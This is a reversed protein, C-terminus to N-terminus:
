WKDGQEMHIEDHCKVCVSMLNELNYVSGGKRIAVIHHVLTAPVTRGQSRCRECIPSRKLKIDRVKRWQGAYGRSAATGRRDDYRKCEAKKHRECYRGDRVLEPCGPKSCPRMPKVPMRDGGLPLASTPNSRACRRM